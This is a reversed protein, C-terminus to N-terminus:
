SQPKGQQERLLLSMASGAMRKREAERTYLEAQKLTLWGFISMLQHPTAGNEAAITAGAKRLGHASCHPLGAEKCRKKFWNGFGNATFPKGYETVLFTMDGTPGADIAKQLEPLVPIEIVVPKRNRNKHATFRIWGGRMHQKGLRVVDSRRAGTFLLLALALRAKTGIPHREEYQRIEEITWTHHGTSPNSLYGVDRVPNHDMHGARIAWNFLGRLARMRNNAGEVKDAKRDRLVRIAKPTLRNLPFDAFLTEAGPAIPEALCAEIRRRRTGQTEPALQKFEVSSFYAVALWRLTGPKPL